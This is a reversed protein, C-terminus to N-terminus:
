PKAPRKLLVRRVTICAMIVPVIVGGFAFAKAFGDRQLFAVGWATFVFTNSALQIAAVVKNNFIKTFNAIVFTAVGLSASVFMWLNSNM